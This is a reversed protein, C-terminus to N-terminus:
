NQSAIQRLLPCYREFLSISSDLDVAPQIWQMQQAQILVRSIWASREDLPLSRIAASIETDLQMLCHHQLQGSLCHIQVKLDNLQGQLHKLTTDSSASQPRVFAQTLIKLIVATESQNTRKAESEIAEIVESPLQFSIHQSGM